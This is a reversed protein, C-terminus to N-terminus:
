ASVVLGHRLARATAVVHQATLGFKEYLAEPAGSAGFRDISVIRGEAGVVDRWGMASGAEISVRATVDLPLVLDRYEDPQADFWERCPMSVVRVALGGDAAALVQAAEIAVHVESGTAILIIAPQARPITDLVAYGGRWADAVVAAPLVPVEQRALCLGAPRRRRLIEETVVATENADAPRVVDLGPVARLSALHEVPQHTPGDEGLGISDHTWVYIVPLKMLAALRVPPRM